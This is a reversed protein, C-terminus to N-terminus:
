LNITFSPKTMGYLIKQLHFQEKFEFCSRKVILEILKHMSTQKGRNFLHLVTQRGVQGEELSQPLGWVARRHHDVARGVLRKPQASRQRREAVLTLKTAVAEFRMKEM